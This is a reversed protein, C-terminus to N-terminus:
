KAFFPQRLSPELRRFSDGEQEIENLRGRKIEDNKKLTVIFLFRTGGRYPIGERPEELIVANIKREKKKETKESWLTVDRFSNM